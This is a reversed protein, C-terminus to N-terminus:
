EHLSDFAGHTYAYSFTHWLNFLTRYLAYYSQTRTANCVDSRSSTVSTWHFRVRVSHVSSSGNGELSGFRVVVWICFYFSFFELRVSGQLWLVRGFGSMAYWALHSGHALLSWLSKELHSLSLGGSRINAVGQRRRHRAAKPSLRTTATRRSLRTMTATSRPLTPVLWM